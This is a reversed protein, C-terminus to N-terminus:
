FLILSVASFHAVRDFDSFWITSSHMDHVDPNADVHIPADTHTLSSSRDVARERHNFNNKNNDEKKQTKRAM